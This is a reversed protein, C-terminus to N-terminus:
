VSYRVQPELGLDLTDSIFIPHEVTIQLAPFNVAILIFVVCRADSTPHEGLVPFVFSVDSTKGVCTPFM